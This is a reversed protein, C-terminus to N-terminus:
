DYLPRGDHVTDGDAYGYAFDSGPMHPFGRFNLGNDFKFRCTAFSKDCGATITFTDGPMIAAPMPLWLTLEVAGGPKRHDEVDAALGDNAGGTFTMVGHRFFRFPFPALGSVRVRLADEVRVVEGAGRYTPLAANVGCREDGFVADCRHGYVRGKVQDLVHTLRRLEARFAEGARTVEGLEGTRLLMRRGPNRWNVLFVEVRAGDYRGAALDAEDIADATLGGALDSADVSLGGSAETDSQQFGSAAKFVTGDFFLDYDHETFGLVVGDRRRVRWAYCVNTVEGDLHTALGAPMTRM